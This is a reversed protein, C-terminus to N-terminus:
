YPKFDLSASNVCYRQGTPAPGDDFLHGLHADCVACTIEVRIMGHSHDEHRNIRGEDLAQWFSPWGSGSEYKHDAAFLESGCCVCHYIGAADHHYYQGTFPRETGKRRCIHYQEPTLLAQWEEDSRILKKEM